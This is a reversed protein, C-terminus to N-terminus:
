KPAPQPVASEVETRQEPEDPEEVARDALSEVVPQSPAQPSGSAQVPSPQGSNPLTKQAETAQRQVYSGIFAGLTLKALDLFKESRDGPLLALATFIVTLGITALPLGVLGLRTFVGTVGSLSSLRIYQDVGTIKEDTILRNLLDRDQPPIVQRTAAGAGRLLLYGALTSLMAAALLLLPVALKGGVLAIQLKLDENKEIIIAGIKILSIVIYILLVFAVSFFGVGGFIFARTTITTQSRREFPFAPSVIPQLSM